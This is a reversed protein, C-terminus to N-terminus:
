DLRLESSDQFASTRLRHGANSILGTLMARRGVVVVCYFSAKSVRSIEKDCGPRIKEALLQLEHKEMAEPDWEEDKNEAGNAEGEERAKEVGNVVEGNVETGGAASAEETEAVDEEPDKKRPVSVTAFGRNSVVKKKKGGTKKPPM